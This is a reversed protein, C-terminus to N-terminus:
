PEGGYKSYDPKFSRPWPAHDLWHSVNGFTEGGEGYWYGDKSCYQAGTLRGDTTFVPVLDSFGSDYTLPKDVKADKLDESRGM